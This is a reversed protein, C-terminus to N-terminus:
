TKGEISAMVSALETVNQWPIAGARLLREVTAKAQPPTYDRGDMNRTNVLVRRGRGIAREAIGLNAVNGPGFPVECVVVAEAGAALDDARRITEDGLPSFPRELATEVGLAAAARADSDGENLAGCTVHWGGLCFRRMVEIGSGGGCIVHVRHAAGDASRLRARVPSVTVAGSVDARVALDCHYIEALIEPKLVEAPTGAVAIRGHDMLMLRPFFEAALNLDHSTMLVALKEDRNLREVLQLVELRHNIDLHSTPEDLLLLRPEQALAMAIVARQKEGGSLENFLRDRLEVVDTYTMVREVVRRDAASLGGWHAASVARGTGVLEEVTFSMPTSLEQPVVAVLRAREGPRIRRVDRGFLRVEGATAPCLGTLARLLTSKGAGNPGLLAAMEGERLEMTVGDLVPAGRYGAVVDVCQVAASM